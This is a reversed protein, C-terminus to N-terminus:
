RETLEPEDNIDELTRRATEPYLAVILVILVAPGIAAVALAPGFADWRESLRGVIQLGIVSGVVAFAVTIGNATSRLRTPFLEPGYVALAPVAVGAGLVTGVLRVAYIAPSESFFSLLTMASGVAIGFAGVPRRGLRDALMGGLLVGFGIPTGTILSFISIESATFGLEDRLFQNDFQSAPTSFVNAALAGVSLLALRRRLTVNSWFETLSERIPRQDLREFRRTHPLQRTAWVVAPVFLAAVGYVIRWGWDAVGAAPLVWIVMGTGLGALLVLMSVGYARSRPPFEEAAFILILLWMGTASGRALVQTVALWEISPMLAGAFTAATSIVAAISMAVRRGKRDGIVVLGLALVIAVRVISLIDARASRDHRADVCTRAGDALEAFEACFDDAAFTLTQGIVSGIFGNIIALVGLLGIVRAARADLRDAPAWWPSQNRHGQAIHRRILPWFLFSFVPVALRWSTTEVVDHVGDARSTVALSRRYTSFPGDALTFEDSGAPHELVIGDIPTRLQDLEEDNVVLTRRQTTV